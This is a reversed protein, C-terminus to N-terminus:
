LKRQGVRKRNRRMKKEGSQSQRQLLRRKDQILQLALHHCGLAPLNPVCALMTCVWYTQANIDLFCYLQKSQRQEPICGARARYTTAGFQVIQQLVRRWSWRQHFTLRFCASPNVVFSTLREVAALMNSSLDSETLPMM